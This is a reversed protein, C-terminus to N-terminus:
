LIVYVLNFTCVIKEFLMWYVFLLVRVDFATSNYYVFTKKLMITIDTVADHLCM